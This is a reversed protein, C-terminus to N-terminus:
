SSTRSKKQKLNYKKNKLIIPINNKICEPCFEQRNQEKHFYNLCRYYKCQIYRHDLNYKSIKFTLKIFCAAILNSAKNCIFVEDNIYLSYFNDIYFEKSNRKENLLNILFVELQKIGNKIISLIKEDDYVFNIPNKQLVDLMTIMDEYHKSNNISISSVEFGLLKLLYSFYDPHFDGYLLSNSIKSSLNFVMDILAIEMSNFVFELTDDEKYNLLLYNNNCFAQYEDHLKQKNSFWYNHFLTIIDPSNTGYKDIADELWRKGINYIEKFASNLDVLRSNVLAIEFSGFKKIKNIDYSEIM